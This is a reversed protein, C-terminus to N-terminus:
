KEQPNQNDRSQPDKERERKKKKLKSHNIKSNPDHNMNVACM